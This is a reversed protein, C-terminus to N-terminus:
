WRAGPQWTNRLQYCDNCYVPRGGVRPQFPVQTPRNCNACIAPYLLRAGTNQPKGNSDTRQSSGQRRSARCDPCRGPANTLGHRAYFEQEGVTFAFERNCDRCYLIQEEMCNRRRHTIAPLAMHLHCEQMLANYCIVFPM